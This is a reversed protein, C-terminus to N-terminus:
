VREVILAIGQGGGICLSVCGLKAQRNRLEYLIKTVLMAGSAGIPHGLAVAGGNVNLKEEPISLERQVVIAIAAFAENIEFLDIDNISLSAKELANKVAPIPAIGFFNPDVASVAYSLIRGFVPLNFKNAVKENSLVMAAAGSNLSPANGATITGGEKFAPRLKALRELTTDPRVNEDVQFVFEKSVQIPVIQSSFKGEQIAKAAKMHSEYAFQDQEERTVGYKPVLYEDTILGSHKGTFADNLGDMLMADYLTTDGMRAGYRGNSLIYPAKDMNEMGGALVCSAYGSQIEMAATIVAQLGSGCVRNVVMAPVSDSIGGYIAAQRAANMKEGAQIVNGLVVDDFADPPLHTEELIANIVKGAIEPAPIDKLSGGFKSIATRLPMSIFVENM